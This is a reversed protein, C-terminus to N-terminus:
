GRVLSVTVVVVRTRTQRKAGAIIIRRRAHSSTGAFAM